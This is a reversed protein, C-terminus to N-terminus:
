CSHIRMPLVWWPDRNNGAARAQVVRALEESGGPSHVGAWLCGKSLCSVPKPRWPSESEGQGELSKAQQNSRSFMRTWEKRSCCSAKWVRLQESESSASFERSGPWTELRQQGKTSRPYKVLLRVIVEVGAQDWIEEFHKLPAEPIPFISLCVSALSWHWPNISLNTQQMAERFRPHM